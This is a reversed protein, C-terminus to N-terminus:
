RKQEKLWNDCLSKAQNITLTEKKEGALAGAIVFSPHGVAPACERILRDHTFVPETEQAVKPKPKPKPKAAEEKAEPAESEPQQDNEQTM